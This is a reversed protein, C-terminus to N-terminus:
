SVGRIVQAINVCAWAIMTNRIEVQHLVTEHMSLKIHQWAGYVFHPPTPPTICSWHKHTHIVIHGSDKCIGDHGVYQM